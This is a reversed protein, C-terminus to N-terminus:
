ISFGAKFTFRLGDDSSFVGLTTNLVNISNIWIGGGVSDQWEDNPDNSIWVRGYDYGGYIGIQLPLFSTKFERFSYRLDGNFVLSQQGSFRENRYGRLGTNGGLTAAQYFEFDDGFIIHSSAATKLVLRSDNTLKNHFSISPKIYPFGSDVDEFNLTYGGTFKVDLGRGPNLPNDFSEYSYGFELTGFFAQDFIEDNEPFITNIFRGATNEVEFAQAKFTASYISGYNSNRKIGVNAEIQGIRVRNFDLDLDDDFNPTDSGFGFFNQAFNQSTARAGVILNANGFVNAFEGNYLLEVGGTALFVNAGFINKTTFPNRIFGKYTSTYRLGFKVGDDPNFGIAPLLSGSTSKKKRQDFINTEYKDTLTVSAGKNYEITNKKSKHDYIKIKRGNAIKYIDNNQGGVIRILIPNKTKGTVEFVDDDDLGYLWIEKTTKKNFVTQTMLDSKKGNKIRYVNITTEGDVSRVIDFYDDKDTGTIIVLKNLIGAYKSAIQTLNDRRNKVNAIITNLKENRVEQPVNEFAKEIVEDTLNEKIFAAQALWEKEEIGKLLIRDLPLAEFNFWKPYKITAGDKSFMKLPSVFRQLTSFLGGDFTSFAQDRDRPIPTYVISNDSKKDESWKWQDEHRDWDGLVMDFLRAKVFAKKDVTYKEDKRLRVLLNKTSEIDDPKGFSEQGLNKDDARLEIMYLEDGYDINYKGLREQKPVYFLKPQTHYIDLAAAMEPVVFSSYPYASTYFDLLLREPATNKFDEEIFNEKFVTAQLFRVASKELARMTYSNGKKDKLRLTKSQHGGGKRVPTLGGYLTDLLAVRAKVKIGYVERYREGWFGTYASSKKTKDKNYVSAEIFEPFEKKFSPLAPAKDTPYIETQFILKADGDEYAYYQVWSSGDEFIDLKVVGQKGYTFKAGESLRTASEKSGSGSVIQHIGDKVNYQISHEHGSAFIVKNAGKALTTIRNVMANYQENYRDQISVGGSKRLHTIMSGIIPIPKLQNRSGYYGGHSGYTLLPHHVSFVITKDEHDGFIDEIATFLNERTKIEPCDDNITPNKDWDALFWQSDMIVLHVKDSIDIEEIACGNNPSFSKKGLAKEIFKEERKLGKVGGSYWDHNGPIFIAQGKFKEVIKIQSNLSNESTIRKKTGEKELGAPYVNDGLFILHDDKSANATIKELVKFGDSIKEQNSAGTDGILYFTKAIKKNSPYIANTDINKDYQAKFTACSQFIIILLILTTIKKAKM